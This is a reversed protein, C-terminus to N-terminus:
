IENQGLFCHFDMESHILRLIHNKQWLRNGMTVWILIAIEIINM